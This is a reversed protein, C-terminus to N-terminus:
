QYPDWPKTVYQVIVVMSVSGIKKEKQEIIIDEGEIPLIDEAVGNLTLNKGLCYVVDSIMQRVSIPTTGEILILEMQVRLNHLHLGIAVVITEVIDRCIIAPCESGGIPVERWDYVSANFSYGNAVTITKLQTKFNTMVTERKPTPM